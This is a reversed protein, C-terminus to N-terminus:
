TITKVVVNSLTSEAGNSALAMVAFYWTGPELNEIVYTQLGITGIHVSHSLDKASSGYYIRYGALDLLPTGNTNSTPAEWSLTATGSAGSVGSPTSAAAPGPGPDMCGSLLAVTILAGVANLTKKLAVGGPGAPYGVLGADM